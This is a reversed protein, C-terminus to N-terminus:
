ELPKEKESQTNSFLRFKTQFFRKKKKNIKKSKIVSLEQFEYLLKKDPNM